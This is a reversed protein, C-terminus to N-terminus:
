ENKTSADKFLDDVLCRAIEALTATVKSRCVYM